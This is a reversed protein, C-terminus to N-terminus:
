FTVFELQSICLFIRDKISTAAMNTNIRSIMRRAGKWNSSEMVSSSKEISPDIKMQCLNLEASKFETWPKFNIKKWLHGLQERSSSM